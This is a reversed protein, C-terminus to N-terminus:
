RSREEDAEREAQAEVIPRLADIAIALSEESLFEGIHPLDPSRALDFAQSAIDFQKLARAVAVPAWAVAFRQSNPAVSLDVLTRIGTEDNDVVIGVVGSRMLKKPAADKIARHLEEVRRWTTHDAM